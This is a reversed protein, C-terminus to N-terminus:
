QIVPFAEPKEAEGRWLLSQRTLVKGKRVGNWAKIVNAATHAQVSTSLQLRAQHRTTLMERLHWATHEASNINEGKGVQQFFDKALVADKQSFRYFLAVALGKPILHDVLHAWSCASRLGENADLYDLMLPEAIQNGSLMDKHMIRWDYRVAASLLNYNSEGAAKFMDGGSRKVGTDITDFVTPKWGWTVVVTIPMDADICGMMRTQGDLMRLADSLIIPEGNTQFYQGRIAAAIKSKNRAKEPRNDHQDELLRKALAPSITVIAVGHDASPWGQDLLEEFQASTLKVMRCQDWITHAMNTNRITTITTQQLRAAVLSCCECLTIHRYVEERGV